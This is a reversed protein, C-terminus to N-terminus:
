ARPAAAFVAGIRSGSGYKGKLSRRALPNVAARDLRMPAHLPPEGTTSEAAWAVTPVGSGDIGAAPAEDVSNFVSVRTRAVIEPPGFTQSGAPRVAAAILQRGSGGTYAAFALLAAGNPAVALDSLGGVAEQPSVSQHAGFRRGPPATAARM